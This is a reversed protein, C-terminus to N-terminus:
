VRASLSLGSVPVPQFPFPLPWPRPCRNAIGSYKLRGLDIFQYYFWAVYPNLNSCGADIFDIGHYPLHTDTACCAKSACFPIRTPANLMPSKGLTTQSTFGSDIQFIAGTGHLEATSQEPFNKTCWYLIRPFFRFMLCNCLSHDIGHGCGVKGAHGVDESIKEFFVTAVGFRKEIAQTDIHSGGSKGACAYGIFRIGLQPHFCGLKDAVRAKDDLRRLVVM